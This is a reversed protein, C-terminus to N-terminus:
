QPTDLHLTGLIKHFFSAMVLIDLAEAETYELVDEQGDDSFGIFSHLMANFSHQQQLELPSKGANIAYDMTNVDDKLEQGSEAIINRMSNKLSDISAKVCSNYGQHLYEDTAFEFILPHVDRNILQIRMSEGRLRSMTGANESKMDLLRGNDDIYLGVLNLSDNIESRLAESKSINGGKKSIKVAKILLRIMTWPSLGKKHLETLLLSMKKPGLPSSDLLSLNLDKLLIALQAPSLGTLPDTLVKTLGALVNANMLPLFDM